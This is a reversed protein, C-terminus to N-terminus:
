PLPKEEKFVVDNPQILSLKMHHIISKLNYKGKVLPVTLIDENWLTIKLNDAM